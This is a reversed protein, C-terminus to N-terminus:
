GEGRGPTLTTGAGQAAGGLGPEQEEVRYRTLRGAIGSWEEGRLPEVRWAGRGPVLSGRAAQLLHEMLGEQGCPLPRLRPPDEELVQQWLDPQPELLISGHQLLVGRRWLQASGIRKGGSDEVLDAATSSAFCSAHRPAASDTGSGLPLGLEAFGQQLWACAQRYAERRRAPAQPWILAYTLEGAHLVAQGGSPRRVLDLEGRRRLALWRPELLRQHFGLSLTPRSWSYFRLVAGCGDGRRSLTVARDLLWEDIAMQWTGRLQLPPILRLGPGPTM